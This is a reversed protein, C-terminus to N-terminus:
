NGGHEAVYAALEREADADMPPREYAALRREVREHAQEFASKAGDDAWDRHARKDVFASRFFGNEGGAGSGPAGVFHGAPDTEEIRELDLHAEDVVFGERFRDLCRMAECDLVFKEPSITSYSELIGAANLVFDIGAFDTVTQLFMSEFGSQHDVSKADSLGGGARSPLGYFAALRAAAAVFLASEPTGISLSGYRPDVTATPVGYVVPTGPNVLQTLTVALLNEANAQALSAALTPPGSAGAVTFSSVIPPQGHEAYTLLGGLMEREISRPPVTNVLGAVYPRSLAPDGTAIGVMEMCARAREEGYTPGMVPKDTLTLARELMEYHGTAEDVAPPECVRYGTCGIAEEVQALKVLREYDERTASRRGETYTRVNPPGYGPARVPPGDGGVVVDNAPNRAHLTFSSPAARIADEVVERPVTVVDGEDVHGGHSELLSRAREHGLKVGFEELVRMSAEHIATCEEDDLRGLSPLSTGMGDHDM